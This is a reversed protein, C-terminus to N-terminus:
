GLWGRVAGLLWLMLGSIVVLTLTGSVGVTMGLVVVGLFGIVVETIGRGVVVGIILVVALAVLLPAMGPVDSVVPLSGAEMILVAIGVVALVSGFNPGSVTHVRTKALGPRFGHSRGGVLLALVTALVILVALLEVV